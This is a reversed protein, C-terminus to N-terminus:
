NHEYLRMGNIYGSNVFSLVTVVIEGNTPSVNYIWGPNNFNDRANVLVEQPAAMWMNDLGGKGFNTHLYDMLFKFKAVSMSASSVPTTFSKLGKM